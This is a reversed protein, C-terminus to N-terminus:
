SLLLPNRSPQLSLGVKDPHVKAIGKMYAVKVKSPVILEGMGVKKWGAEEWLVTDLSALLARLNGEKGSRWAAVRESVQDALAFKEDDLREAELNAARLRTLAEAQRSKTSSIVSPPVIPIARKTTSPAAVRTQQTERAAEAQSSKTSSELSVPSNPPIARKPAPPAAAKTKQTERAAETRRPEASGLLSPPSTARKATPPEAVKPQQIERAQTAKPRSPIAQSSTRNQSEHRPERMWKPQSSDSESNFDAVAQNLKKTGSKWLSNATKFLNSGIEAAIKSPDKEVNTSSRSNHRRQDTPDTAEKMWAPNKRQGGGSARRAPSRVSKQSPPPSNRRIPAEITRESPEHAKHSVPRGLLGLVDDDDQDVKPQHHRLKTPGSMTGLGFPDDDNHGDSDELPSPSARRVTGNERTESAGNISTEEIGGLLDDNSFDNHQEPKGSHGSGVSEGTRQYQNPARHQSISPNLPPSTATIPTSKGSGLQELFDEDASRLNATGEGLHQKHLRQRQEEKLRQLEQLSVNKTAQTPQFSILNSFNDNVPTSANSRSTGTNPPPFPSSRGSLPPTPRLPPYYSSQDM